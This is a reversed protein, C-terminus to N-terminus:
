LDDRGSNAASGAVDIIEVVLERIRLDGSM